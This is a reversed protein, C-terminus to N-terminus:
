FWGPRSRIGFCVEPLESRMASRQHIPALLPSLCFCRQLSMKGVTCLVSYESWLSSLGFLFICDLFDM